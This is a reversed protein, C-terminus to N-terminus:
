KSFSILTINQKDAAYDKCTKTFGNKSFIYYYKNTQPFSASDAILTEIVDTDTTEDGWHCYGFLVSDKNDAALIDFAIKRNTKPEYGWWRGIESFEFPAKRSSLLNTLYQRCIDKFVDGMFENLQQRISLWANQTQGCTISTMLEPMFRYWFRFIPDSIRYITKKVSPDTVPTEKAVIGMSLMSKLYVTCVSTEEQIRNHIEAMKCSNEALIALIATYLAQERVEHGLLNYPEHLLPALPNLFLQKVNEELTLKDNFLCLYKPIGGVMGYICAADVSSFRKFFHCSEFYDFPELCLRCTQQRHLPSKENETLSEMVTFGSGCLVLFLKSTNRYKSILNSLIEPFNKVAKMLFPFNDLVLIMQQRTSFHFISELATEFSDAQAALNSSGSAKRVYKLFLDLNHLENSEAATFYLYPKQNVFEALLASKGVGHRGYVSLFQFKGTRYLNNLQSLEQTRGIFM